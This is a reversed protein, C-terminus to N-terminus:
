AETTYCIQVDSVDSIRWFKPFNEDIPDWRCQSFEHRQRFTYFLRLDVYSDLTGDWFITSRADSKGWNSNGFNPLDPDYIDNPSPWFGVELSMFMITIPKFGYDNMVYLYTYFGAAAQIVGTQMYAFGLLKANVLHDRKSHRPM